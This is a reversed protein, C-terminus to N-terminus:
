RRIYLDRGTQLPLALGGRDSRLNQSREGAGYAAISIVAGISWRGLSVDSTSCSCRACLRCRPQQVSHSCHPDLSAARPLDLSEEVNQLRHRWAQPDDIRRRPLQAAGQFGTTRPGAGEARGANPSLAWGAVGACRMQAVVHSASYVITCLM